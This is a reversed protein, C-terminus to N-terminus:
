CETFRMSMRRFCESVEPDDLPRDALQLARERAAAPVTFAAPAGKLYVNVRGGACRCESPTFHPYLAYGDWVFWMPADPALRLHARLADQIVSWRDDGCGQFNHVVRKDDLHFDFFRTHALLQARTLVPM